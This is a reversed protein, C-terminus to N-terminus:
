SIGLLMQARHEAIFHRMSRPAAKHAGQEIELNERLSKLETAHQHLRADSDTNFKEARIDRVSSDLALKWKSVYKNSKVLGKVQDLHANMDVM